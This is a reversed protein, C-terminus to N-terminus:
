MTSILFRIASVFTPASKQAKKLKKNLEINGEPFSNITTNIPPSFQLTASLPADTRTFGETAFDAWGLTERKM